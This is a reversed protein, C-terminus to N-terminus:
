LIRRFLPKWHTLKGTRSNVIGEETLTDIRVKGSAHIIQQEELLLGVHDMKGQQNHIFVLDGAEAESFSVEVGKQIQQSSDRPLFHGNVKFVLQTFGSCDIGFPSRGGWLYPSNILKKATAIIFDVGRRQLMSKSDGNFALKEDMDFLENSTIPIISGICIISSRKGILINTTLDLSVKFDSHNIEDFYSESIETHQNGAIWGVYGDFALRILIWEGEDKEELVSYHEGFLIQSVMESRHSADVRIPVLSLRCIGAKM